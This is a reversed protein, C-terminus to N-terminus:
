PGSSALLGVKSVDRWVQEGCPVVVQGVLLDIVFTLRWSQQGFKEIGEGWGSSHMSSGNRAHCSTPKWAASM